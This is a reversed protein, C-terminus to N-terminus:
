QNIYISADAGLGAQRDHLALADQELLEATDIREGDAQVGLRLLLDGTDLFSRKKM